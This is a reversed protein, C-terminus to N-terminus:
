GQNGDTVREFGATALPEASAELRDQQEARTQQSPLREFVYRGPKRGEPWGGYSSVRSTVANPRM